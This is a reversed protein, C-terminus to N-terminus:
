MRILCRMVNTGVEHRFWILTRKMQTCWGRVDSEFTPCDAIVELMEGANLKLYMGTLKLTPGPCKLGRADLTKTEV